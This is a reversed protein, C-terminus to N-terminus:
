GAIECWNKKGCVPCRLKKKDPTHPSLFDVMIPLRFTVGCAPCKCSTSKSHHKVIIFILAVVMSLWVIVGVTGFKPIFIIGLPIIVILLFSIGAATKLRSGNGSKTM